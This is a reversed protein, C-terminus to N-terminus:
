QIHFYPPSRHHWMRMARFSLAESFIEFAYKTEIPDSANNNNYKGNFEGIKLPNCGFHFVIFAFDINQNDKCLCANYFISSYVDFMTSDRIDNEEHVRIEISPHM